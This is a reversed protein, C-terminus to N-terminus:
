GGFLKALYGDFVFLYLAEAMFVVVFPIILQLMWRSKEARRRTDEVFAKRKDANWDMPLMDETVDKNVFARNYILYVLLIVAFAVCYVTLLVYLIVPNQLMEAVAIGGFWIVFLVVTLAATIGLRRKNEKSVPRDTRGDRPLLPSNRNPSFM